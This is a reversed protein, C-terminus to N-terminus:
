KGGKPRNSSRSLLPSLAFGGAVGILLAIAAYGLPSVASPTGSGFGATIPAGSAQGGSATTGGDTGSTSPAGTVNHMQSSHCANCTDITPVFSHSATAHLDSSTDPRVGLHCDVCAVGRQTHKSHESTATVDKHCNKCLASPDPQAALAAGPLTKFGATHPDHCTSCPMGKQYHASMAWSSGFRPDSHCSACVEDTAEVPMNGMPHDASVPGHCAACTVGQEAGSGTAAAFAPAHCNICATPKGQETWAQFFAENQGAQAHKGGQWASQSEAHCSACDSAAPQQAPETDAKAQTVFLMFGMVPLAIFLSLLLQKIFRM